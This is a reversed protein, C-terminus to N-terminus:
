LSENIEGLSLKAPAVTFDGSLDNLLCKVTVTDGLIFLIDYHKLNM